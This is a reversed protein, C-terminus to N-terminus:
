THNYKAQITVWEAVEAATLGFMLMVYKETQGGRTVM